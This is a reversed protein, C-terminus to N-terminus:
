VKALMRPAPAADRFKLDIKPGFSSHQASISWASARHIKFGSEMSDRRTSISVSSVWLMDQASIISSIVCNVWKTYWLVLRANSCINISSFIWSKLSFCLFAVIFSIMSRILSFSIFEVVVTNFSYLAVICGENQSSIEFSINKSSKWVRGIQNKVAIQRRKRPGVLSEYPWKATKCKKAALHICSVM